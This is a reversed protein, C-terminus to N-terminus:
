APISVYRGSAPRKVEELQRFDLTGKHVDATFQRGVLWGLDDCSAVEFRMRLIDGQIPHQAGYDVFYTF